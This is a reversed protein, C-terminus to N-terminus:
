LFIGNLCIWNSLRLFVSLWSWLLYEDGDGSVSGGSSGLFYLHLLVQFLHHWVALLWALLFLPGLNLEVHIGDEEFIINLCFDVVKISCFWSSSVLANVFIQQPLDSLIVGDFKLLENLGSDWVLELVVFELVVHEWVQYHVKSKDVEWYSCDMWENRLRRQIVYNVPIANSLKCM